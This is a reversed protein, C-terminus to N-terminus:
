LELSPYIICVQKRLTKQAKITFYIWVGLSAYYTKEKHPLDKNIYM